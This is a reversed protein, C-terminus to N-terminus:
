ISTPNGCIFDLIKKQYAELKYRLIREDVRHQVLNKEKAFYEKAVELWEEFDAKSNKKKNKTRM